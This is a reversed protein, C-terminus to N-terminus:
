VTSSLFCCKTRIHSNPSPLALSIAEAKDSALFEPTYQFTYGNEDETLIGAKIGRLYVIAQKM